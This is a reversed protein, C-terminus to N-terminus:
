ISTNTGGGTITGSYTGASSGSSITVQISDGKRAIDPGGIGLNTQPSDVDLKSTKLTTNGSVDITAAGAVTVKADGGVVINLGKTITINANGGTEDESGDAVEIDIDGNNRLHIKSGTIPHYYVVEGEEVGEPRLLPTYGIATLNDDDDGVAFVLCLTKDTPMNAFLGYTHLMEATVVKGEYSIQQLPAGPLTDDYPGSVVARKILNRLNNLM